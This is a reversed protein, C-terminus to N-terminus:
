GYKRNLEDLAIKCKATANWADPWFCLDVTRWDHGIHYAWSGISSRRM